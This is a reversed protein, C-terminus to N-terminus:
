ILRFANAINLLESVRKTELKQHIHKSHTKVTYKSIFLREGIQQHTLGMATYKLVEKERKTLTQFKEFYSNLPDVPEVVDYFQQHVRELATIEMSVSILSKDPEYIKTSTLFKTYERSPARKVNQVFTITQHLDYKKIFDFLKPLMKKTSEADIIQQMFAAGEAYIRFLTDGYFERGYQNMYYIGMDESRNLHLQCPLLDGFEHMACENNFVQNELLNLKKSNDRLVEKETIIKRGM